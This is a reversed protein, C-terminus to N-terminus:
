INITEIADWDEVIDSVAGCVNKGAYDMEDFAVMPSHYGHNRADSKAAEYHWGEELQAGTCKVKVFHLDPDGDANVCAVAVCRVAKIENTM